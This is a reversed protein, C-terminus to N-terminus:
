KEKGWGNKVTVKQAELPRDEDKVTVKKPNWGNKVTVKQAELSCDEYKVTM